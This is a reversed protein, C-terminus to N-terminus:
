EGAGEDHREQSDDEADASSKGNFCAIVGEKHEEPVDPDNNFISGEWGRKRLERVLTYTSITERRPCSQQFEDILARRRKVWEAEKKVRFDKILMVRQKIKHVEATLECIIKYKQNLEEEEKKQEIYLNHNEEAWKAKMQRLQQTFESQTM